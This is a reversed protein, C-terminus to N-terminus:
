LGNPQQRREALQLQMIHKAIIQRDADKLQVFSLATVFDDGNRSCNIVRCFVTLPIHNPLLTLQLAMYSDHAHETMSHFSLGGESLTIAYQQQDPAPEEYEILKGAILDLKKNIGKLYAELSRNEEGIARLFKSHEQEISLLERILSYGPADKLQPPLHNALASNQDVAHYRMLVTDEVRFYDRRENISPQSPSKRQM